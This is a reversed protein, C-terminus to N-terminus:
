DYEYDVIPDGKVKIDRFNGDTNEFIPQIVWQGLHDIYGWKGNTKAAALGHKFNLVKEFTLDVAIQGNPFIFGWNGNKNVPAFGESFYWIYDYVPKTIAYGTTDAIGYKNKTQYWFITDQRYGTSTFSLAAFEPNKARLRKFKEELSLEKKVFIYEPIGGINEDKKNIYFEKSNLEVQISDNEFHWDIDDYKFPIILSGNKDIFGWKEHEDMVGALGESFENGDEFQPNLLQLTKVNFYGIKDNHMIDVMDEDNTGVFEYIPQIIIEGRQNILGQLDDIYIGAFYNYFSGVSDFIPKIFWEGKLDIFGWKGEYKAAAVIQGQVSFSLTTLIIGMLFKNKIKQM